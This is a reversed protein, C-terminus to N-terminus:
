DRNYLFLGFDYHKALFSRLFGLHLFCIFSFYLSTFNRSFLLFLDCHGHVGRLLIM